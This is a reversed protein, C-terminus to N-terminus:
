QFGFRKLDVVNDKNDKGSFIEATTYETKELNLIRGSAKAAAVAETKNLPRFNIIDFCRGPRTLASDISSANQINATFIFKKTNTDLIGDSVNLIKSMVNNGEEMRGRLLLDADELIMVESSSKMFDIYLRDMGMVREDYAIISSMKKTQLLYKIFTTKGLGPDGTLILINSSSEIYDDIFQDINPIFPYFEPYFTAVKAVKSSIYDIGTPGNFAWSTMTHSEYKQFNFLTQLEEKLATANELSGYITVEVYFDLQDQFYEFVRSGSLSFVVEGKKSIIMSGGTQRYAFGKATYFALIDVLNFSPVNASMGMRLINSDGFDFLKEVMAGETFTNSNIVHSQSHM